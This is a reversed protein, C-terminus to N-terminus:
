RSGCQRTTENIRQPTLRNDDVPLKRNVNNRYTNLATGYTLTMPLMKLELEINDGDAEISDMKINRNIIQLKAVDYHVHRFENRDSTKFEVTIRTKFEEWWRHSHKEGSYFLGQIDDEDRLVARTNKGFGEYHCKLSKFDVRGSNQAMYPLIKNEATLNETIFNVIYTHVEDADTAFYEGRLPALDMYDYLFQFNNMILLQINYFIVYNLPVVNRGPQTCFFDAISDKWYM